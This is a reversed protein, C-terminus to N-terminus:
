DWKQKLFEQMEKQYLYVLRWEEELQSGFSKYFQIAPENWDLVLWSVKECGENLAKQVIAKLLKKGGGNGRHAEDVFLDELKISKGDWTSYVPFYLAFGVVSKNGELNYELVFCSFYKRDGFGDRRLIEETINVRDPSEKEYSALLKILRLIESCDDVTAERVEYSSKVM